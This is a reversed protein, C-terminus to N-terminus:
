LGGTLNRAFASVEKGPATPEPDPGPETDRRTGTGVGSLGETISAADLDDNRRAIKGEKSPSAQTQLVLVLPWCLSLANTSSTTCASQAAAWDFLYFCANLYFAEAEVLYKLVFSSGLTKTLTSGM